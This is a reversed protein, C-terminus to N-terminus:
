KESEDVQLIGASPSACKKRLDGAASCIAFTISDALGFYDYQIDSFRKRSFEVEAGEEDVVGSWGCVVECNTKVSADFDERTEELKDM